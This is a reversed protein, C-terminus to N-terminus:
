NWSTMSRTHTARRCICFDGYPAVINDYIHPQTKLFEMSSSGINLARCGGPMPLAELKEKIWLSEDTFM